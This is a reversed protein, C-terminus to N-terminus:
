KTDHESIAVLKTNILTAYKTMCEHILEAVYEHMLCAHRTYLSMKDIIETMCEHIM